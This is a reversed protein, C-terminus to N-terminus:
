RKHGIRVFLCCALAEAITNQADGLFYLYKCSTGLIFCLRVLLIRLYVLLFSINICRFLWVNKVMAVRQAFEASSLNIINKRIKESFLIRCKM